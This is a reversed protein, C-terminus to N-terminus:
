KPDSKVELGYTSKIGTFLSKWWYNFISRKTDRTFQITGKGERSSTTQNKKKPIIFTNLLFTKFKDVATKSEKETLSAIKLDNYNLNVEGNSERKDYTFHFDM